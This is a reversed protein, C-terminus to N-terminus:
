NSAYGRPDVRRSNTPEPDEAEAVEAAVGLKEVIAFSDSEQVIRGVGGTTIAHGPACLFFTPMERAREYEDVTLRIIQLCELRGCECVFPLTERGAGLRIAADEIRENANRFRSENEAIRRQTEADFQDHTGSAVRATAEALWAPVGPRKAVVVYEEGRKVVTEFDNIEHGPRAFFRDPHSRVLEYEQKTVTILKLCM